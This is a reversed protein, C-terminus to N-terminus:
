DDAIQLVEELLGTAEHGIIHPHLRGLSGIISFTDSSSRSRSMVTM